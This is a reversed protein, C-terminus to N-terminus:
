YPTYFVTAQAHRESQLGQPIITFLLRLDTSIELYPTVAPVIMSHVYSGRVNFTQGNPDDVYGVCYFMVRFNTNERQYYEDIGDAPLVVKGAAGDYSDMTPFSINYVSSSRNTYATTGALIDTVAQTWYYTGHASSEDINFDKILLGIGDNFRQAPMNLWRQFVLFQYKGQIDDYESVYAISIEMYYDSYPNNDTLEYFSGERIIEVPTNALAEERTVSSVEGTWRNTKTYSVNLGIEPAVEYRRLDDDSLLDLESEDMGLAILLEMLTRRDTGTITEPDRLCVKTISGDVEATEIIVFEKGNIGIVTENQEPSLPEPQISDAFVYNGSLLALILLLSFIVKLSNKIKGM